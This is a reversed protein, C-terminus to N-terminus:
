QTITTAVATNAPTTFHVAGLLQMLQLKM